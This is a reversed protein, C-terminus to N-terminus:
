PKKTLLTEVKKLNERYVSLYRSREKEGLEIAKQYNRKAETFKKNAVLADGYSDYVNSFTPYLEVNIKFIAESIKSNSQLFRYGLNNIDSLNILAEQQCALVIRKIENLSSNLTIENFEKQLRGQKNKRAKEYDQSAIKALEEAKQLAEDSKVVIHPQVGVKEFNSKTVPNIDEESSISIVFRDNLRHWMAGYGAGATSEGIITARKQHKLFYAFEEAASASRKNVLVYIPVDSLRKGPVTEETYMGYSSNQYRHTYEALHIREPPFLYSILFAVLRPVGGRNGRVDFIIANSDELLKMASTMASRTEYYYDWNSFSQIKLYGINNELIKLETLSYNLPKTRVINQPQSGEKKIPRHMLYLHLDGNVARLEKTVKKALSDPHTINKFTGLLEQKKLHEGIKNGMELNVYYYSLSDSAKDIVQKIEEKTVNSTNQAYLTLGFIIIVLCLLSKAHTKNMKM